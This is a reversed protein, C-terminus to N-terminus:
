DVEIVLGVAYEGLEVILEEVTKRKTPTLEECNFEQERYVDFEFDEEVGRRIKLALLINNEDGCSTSLVGNPHPKGPLYMHQPNSRGTYPTMTENSSKHRSPSYVNAISSALHNEGWNIEFDVCTHLIQFWYEPLRSQVFSCGSV